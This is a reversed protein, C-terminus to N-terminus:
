GGGQGCRRGGRGGADRRGGRGAAGGVDRVRGLQARQAGARVPELGVELPAGAVVLLRQGPGTRRARAVWNRCSATAAAASTARMCRVNLVKTAAAYRVPSTVSSATIRSLSPSGLSRSCPM